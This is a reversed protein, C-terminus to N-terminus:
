QLSCRSNKEGAERETQVINQGAPHDENDFDVNEGIHWVQVFDENDNKTVLYALTGEAWSAFRYNDCEFSKVCESGDYINVTFKHNMDKGETGILVMRNTSTFYACDYCKQIAGSFEIPIHAKDSPQIIDSPYTDTVYRVAYQTKDNHPYPEKRLPFIDAVTQWNIPECSNLPIWGCCLTNESNPYICFATDGYQKLAEEIFSDYATSIYNESLQLTEVSVQNDDLTLLFYIIFKEYKDHIRIIARNTGYIRGYEAPLSPSAGKIWHRYALKNIEGFSETAVFSNNPVNYICFAELDSSELSHTNDLFLLWGGESTRHNNWTGKEVSYVASGLNFEEQWYSICGVTQENPSLHSDDLRQYGEQYEFTQGSNLIIGKNNANFQNYLVALSGQISRRMNNKQIVQINRIAPLAAIRQYSDKKYLFVNSNQDKTLVHEENASVAVVQEDIPFAHSDQNKINYLTNYLTIYREGVELNSSSQHFLNDNTQINFIDCTHEDKLNVVKSTSFAMQNPTVSYAQWEADCPNFSIKTQLIAVGKESSVQQITDMAQVGLYSLGLALLQKYTINM